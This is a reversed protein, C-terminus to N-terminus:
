AEPETKLNNVVSIIGSVIKARTEVIRKDFANAVMGELTVHGNKVIIHIPKPFDAIAYRLLRDDGYIARAVEYRIRDDDTSAPLVELNNEVKAATKIERVISGEFAEKKYQDTVYGRLVVVRNYVYVEVNDYITYFVHRGILGVVDAAIIDDRAQEEQAPSTAPLLACFALATAAFKKWM